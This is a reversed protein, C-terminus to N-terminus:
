IRMVKKFVGWGALGLLVLLAVGAIVALVIRETRTVATTAFIDYTAYTMPDLKWTLTQGQEETANHETIKGPMTLVYDLEARGFSRDIEPIELLGFQSSDVSATYSYTTRFWSDGRGIELEEADAIISQDILDDLSDFTQVVTLGAMEQRDIPEIRAGVVEAIARLEALPDFGATVMPDYSKRSIAVSMRREGSGDPNITTEIQFAGCGALLLTLVFLTVLHRHPRGM